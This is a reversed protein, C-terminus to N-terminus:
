DKSNQKSQSCIINLTDIVNGLHKYQRQLDKMHENLVEYIYFEEKSTLVLKIREVPMKLHRLEIILGILFIDKESFIRYKNETSVDPQVLGVEIYYRIKSKSIGLQAAVQSITYKQEQTM